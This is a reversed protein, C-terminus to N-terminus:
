SPIQSLPRVRHGHWYRMGGQLRADGKPPIKPTESARNVLGGTQKGNEGLSAWAQMFAKGDSGLVFWKM